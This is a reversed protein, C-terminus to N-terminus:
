VTGQIKKDIYKEQDNQIEEASTRVCKSLFNNMSLDHLKFKNVDLMINMLKLNQKNQSERIDLELKELETEREDLDFDDKKTEVQSDIETPQPSNNNNNKEVIPIEKEYKLPSVIEFLLDDPDKSDSTGMIIKNTTPHLKWYTKDGKKTHSISVFRIESYDKIDTIDKESFEMELKFTANERYTYSDEFISSTIYENMYNYVLYYDEDFKNIKFSVGQGTLGKVIEFVGKKSHIKVETEDEKKAVLLDTKTAKLHNNNDLIIYSFPTKKHVLSFKHNLIICKQINDKQKEGLETKFYTDYNYYDEAKASLELKYKESPEKYENHCNIVNKILSCKSPSLDGTKERVFGVCESNENCKKKCQDLNLKDIEIYINKNKEKDKDKPENPLSVLTDPYKTYQIDKMNENNVLNDFTEIKLKTKKLILYVSISLIIIIIIILENM